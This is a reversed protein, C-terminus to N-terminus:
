DSAVMVDSAKIVVSVAKGETLALRDASVKTIISVLETGGPLEVTVETNVAGPAIKKIKGKLVNRASIQMVQEEL